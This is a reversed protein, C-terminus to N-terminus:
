RGKRGVFQRTQDAPSVLKATGGQQQLLMQMMGNIQTLQTLVSCLGVRLADAQDAEAFPVAKIEKVGQGLLNQRMGTEAADKDKAAVTYTPQGDLYLLFFSLAQMTSM